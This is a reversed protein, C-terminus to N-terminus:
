PLTGKALCIAPCGLLSTKALNSNANDFFMEKLMGSISAQKRFDSGVRVWQSEVVSSCTDPYIIWQDKLNGDKDLPFSTFSDFNPQSEVHLLIAASLLLLRFLIM